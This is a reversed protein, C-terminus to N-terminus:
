CGLRFANRLVENVDDGVEDNSYLKMESGFDKDDANNGM